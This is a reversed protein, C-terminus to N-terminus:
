GLPNTTLRALWQVMSAGHDLCVENSGRLTLRDVQKQGSRPKTYDNYRILGEVIGIRSVLQAMTSLSVSTFLDHAFNKLMKFPVM